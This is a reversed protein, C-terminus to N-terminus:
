HFSEKVRNYPNQQSKAKEQRDCKRGFAASDAEPHLSRDAIDRGRTVFNLELEFPLKAEVLVGVTMSRLDDLNIALFANRRSDMLRVWKKSERSVPSSSRDLVLTTEQADQFSGCLAAVDNSKLQKLRLKGKVGLLVDGQGVGGNDSGSIGVEASEADYRAGALSRLSADRNRRTGAQGRWSKNSLM